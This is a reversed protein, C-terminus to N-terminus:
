TSRINEKAHGCSHEGENGSGYACDEESVTIDGNICFHKYKCGHECEGSCTEECSSSCTEECISVGVDPDEQLSLYQNSSLVTNSSEVTASAPDDFRTEFAAVSIDKLLPANVTVATTEFNSTDLGKSALFARTDLPAAAPADKPAPPAASVDKPAPAAAPVDKPAPAAAPVDKPGAVVAPKADPPQLARVQAFSEPAPKMDIHATGIEALKQQVGSRKSASSLTIFGILAIVKAIHIFRM